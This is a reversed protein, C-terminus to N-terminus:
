DSTGLARDVFTTIAGIVEDKNIENLVEHQAGAYIREELDDGQIREIAERTVDLPALQDQDGHVWLTPLDGLTPGEAIAEVAGFLAQLTERHFPGHYVLEDAAYAEGVAPDRSLATPDIPVEPIPDMQLLQAFGPNGGIAPGSLVLARLRGPRTQAYRTAIIGGMSHGLLVLPLGPNDAEAIDVVEDLDSVAHMLDEVLAREGASRGHGHHDPAYVTAGHAVLADAVHGYRGAHEGYGHAIIAVYRAQENPWLHVHVAGRAGQIELGRPAESTTM